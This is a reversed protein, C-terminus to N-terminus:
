ANTNIELKGPIFLNMDFTNTKSPNTPGIKSWIGYQLNVIINNLEVVTKSGESILSALDIKPDYLELNLAPIVDNIPILSGSLNKDVIEVNILKILEEIINEQIYNIEITKRDGAASKSEPVKAKLLDIEKQYEDTLLDYSIILNKNEPDVLYKDIAADLTEKWTILTGKPAGVLPFSSKLHDYMTKMNLIIDKSYETNIRKEIALTIMTDFDNSFKNLVDLVSMPLVKLYPLKVLSVFIRPVAAFVISSSQDFLIGSGSDIYKSYLIKRLADENGANATGSKEPIYKAIYEDKTPNDKNQYMMFGTSIRAQKKDPRIFANDISILGGQKNTDITLMDLFLSYYQNGANFSWGLRIFVNNLLKDDSKTTFLTSTQKLTETVKEKPDLSIFPTIDFPQATTHGVVRSLSSFLNGFCSYFMNLGKAFKSPASKALKEALPFISPDPAYENRFPPRSNIIAELEKSVDQTIDPRLSFLTDEDFAGRTIYSHGLLASAAEKSSGQTNSVNLNLADVLAFSISDMLVPSYQTNQIILPLVAKEEDRLFASLKSAAINRINVSQSSAFQHLKRAETSNLPKAPTFNIYKGSPRRAVYTDKDKFKSQVYALSIGESQVSLINGMNGPQDSIPIGHLHEESLFTYNTYFTFNEHVGEKAFSALKVGQQLMTGYFHNTWKTPHAASTTWAKANLIDTLEDSSMGGFKKKIWEGSDKWAQSYGDTAPDSLIAEKLDLKELGLLIDSITIPKNQNM